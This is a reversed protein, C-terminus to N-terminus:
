AENWLSRWHALWSARVEDETHGATSAPSVLPLARDVRVSAVHRAFGAYEALDRDAAYRAFRAEFEPGGGPGRGKGQLPLGEPRPPRRPPASGEVPDLPQGTM